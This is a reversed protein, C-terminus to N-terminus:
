RDFGSFTGKYKRSRSRLLEAMQFEDRYTEVSPLPQTKQCLFQM